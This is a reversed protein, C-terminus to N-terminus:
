LCRGPLRRGPLLWSSYGARNPAPALNEPHDVNVAEAWILSEVNKIHPSAEMEELVGRLEKLSPLIAVIDMNYRGRPGFIVKPYKKKTLFEMVEKAKEKEPDTKVTIDCVCKYGLSYPNVQM